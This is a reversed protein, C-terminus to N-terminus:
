AKNLWKPSQLEQTILHSIATGVCMDVSYSLASLWAVYKETGETRLILMGESAAEEIYQSVGEKNITIM